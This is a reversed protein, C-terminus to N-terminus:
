KSNIIISAIIKSLENAEKILETIKYKSVDMTDRILCLWYKTENASKLAIAQFNRWDKVSSGARSEVVNAGISTASRLLQDFLSFYIRDFRIDKIFEIVEKSFFYCRHKIGYPKTSEEVLYDVEDNM